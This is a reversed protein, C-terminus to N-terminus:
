APHAVEIERLVNWVDLVKGDIVPKDEFAWAKVVDAGGIYRRAPDIGVALSPPIGVLIGIGADVSAGM